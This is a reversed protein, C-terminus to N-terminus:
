SKVIENQGLIRNVVGCTHICRSITEKNTFSEILDNKYFNNELIEKWSKSKLSVDEVPVRLQNEKVPKKSELDSGIYSCPLVDLRSNVYLRNNNKYVCSIKYLEPLSVSLEQLKDFNPHRLKLNAPPKIVHTVNGTKSNKVSFENSKFRATKRLRFVDVGLSKSLVKCDELEHENHEFPIFDWQTSVNSECCLKVRKLIKEIDTNQRYLHNTKLGDIGFIVRDSATLFKVLESWWEISKLSGNTFIHVVIGKSKCHKIIPILSPCTLPDGHSGCFYVQKLNVLDDSFVRLHDTDNWFALDSQINYGHDNRACMPCAANCLNSVEVHMEIISEPTAYVNM